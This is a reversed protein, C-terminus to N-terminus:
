IGTLYREITATMREAPTDHPFLTLFRGGPAMLFTTPTHSALYENPPMEPLTVKMRHVRFAKAAAAVQMESGTLGLIGPHINGLFARLTEPRDRAPDISIFLPQIRDAGDGLLDLVTSITALDTPCVDPCKTYGFYVLLLRDGFEKDTRPNGHHDILDFPGGFQVPFEASPRPATTQEHARANGDIETFVAALVFLAGLTGNCIARLRLMTM